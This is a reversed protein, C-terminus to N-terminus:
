DAGRACAPALEPRQRLLRDFRKAILRHGVANAHYDTGGVMVGAPDHGEWWDSLDVTTLGAEAALDLFAAAQIPTSTVGPMPLYVWVLPVGRRRCDAALDRYLALIIQRGFPQLRAEVAFRDMDPTVGAQRVVDGLGYRLPEGRVVLGTLQGVPASLEDQHAVYYIADPGFAFVKRDTIVRRHLVDSLGEGFNLVECRGGPRGANLRDELLRTFTQDDDVGYGMVVSSGVVALRCGGPPKERTRDRDRMGLRNVTIHGGAIEGTWGPILERVLWVDAPRTM